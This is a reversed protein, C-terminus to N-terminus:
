SRTQAAASAAVPVKIVFPSTMARLLAGYDVQFRVEAGVTLPRHGTDLVLHDCSAGLIEIGVPPQIGTVDVDQVGLALIAQQVPGRNVAKIGRENLAQTLITATTRKGIASDTGLVAIRPCTVTDIRGSFLRMDKKDRPRRVDLIEVDSATAAAM